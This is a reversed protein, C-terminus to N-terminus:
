NFGLKVRVRKLVDNAVKTAKVAGIALAKDIENLNNM